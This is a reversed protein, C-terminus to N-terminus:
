KFEIDGTTGERMAAGIVVAALEDEAQPPLDAPDHGVTARLAPLFVREVTRMVERSLPFGAGSTMWYGPLRLLRSALLLGPKASTSMAEDVVFASGGRVRDRVDVGAFSHAAVVEFASFRPSAMARRVLTEDPDDSPPLTALYKQALTRGRQRHHYLLFDFLITLEGESGLLLKDGDLLGFTKAWKRFATRPVSRVVLNQHRTLIARLRRHHKLDVRPQQIM